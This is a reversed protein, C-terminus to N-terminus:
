ANAKRRHVAKQIGGAEPGPEMNFDFTEVGKPSCIRVARLDATLFLNAIPIPKKDFMLFLRPTGDWRQLEDLFAEIRTRADYTIGTAALKQQLAAGDPRVIAWGSTIRSEIGKALKHTSALARHAAQHPEGNQSVLHRGLGANFFEYVNM